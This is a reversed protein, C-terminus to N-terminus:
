SLPQMTVANTSIATPFSTSGSSLGRSCGKEQPAHTISADDVWPACDRRRLYGVCPLPPADRQVFTVFAEGAARDKRGQKVHM